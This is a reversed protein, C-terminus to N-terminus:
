GRETGEGADSGDGPVITMEDDVLVVGRGCGRQHTEEDLVAGGDFLDM